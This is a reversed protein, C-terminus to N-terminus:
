SKSGLFLSLVDVLSYLDKIQINEDRGHINGTKDRAVGCGVFQWNLKKAIEFLDGSGMVAYFKGNDLVRKMYEAMIKSAPSIKAYASMQHLFELNYKIKSQYPSLAERIERKVKAIKEEPIFRRDIEIECRDPVINVKLGGVIKDINLKAQMFRIGLDPNVPIKSFRSEVKKKLKVLSNILPLSNEVANIGLHAIASHVSKGQVTIKISIHGLGGISVYGFTCDLNLFVAGAAQDIKNALLYLIQETQNTEEDTTVMVTTDWNQIKSKLRDVAMLFAILSGKMDAVGRGFIKGNKIKPKFPQWDPDAPVVDIHSYVLLRPKGPNRKHALLNVRGEAISSPINIVATEFGVKEFLPKLFKVAQHYNNGPPNTNDIAVLDL